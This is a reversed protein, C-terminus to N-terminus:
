ALNEEAIKEIEKWAMSALQEHKKFYMRQKRCYAPWGMHKKTAVPRYPNLQISSMGTLTHWRNLYFSRVASPTRFLIIGHYHYRSYRNQNYRGYQPMSMEPFMNYVTDKDQLKLISQVAEKVLRGRTDKKDAYQHKDDPNISFEYVINPSIIFKDEDETEAFPNM